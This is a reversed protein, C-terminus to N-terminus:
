KSFTMLLLLTEWMTWWVGCKFPLLKEIVHRAHDSYQFDCPFGVCLLTDGCDVFAEFNTFLKGWPSSVHSSLEAFFPFMSGGPSVYFYSYANLFYWITDQIVTQASAACCMISPPTKTNRDATLGRMPQSWGWGHICSNSQSRTRALQVEFFVSEVVLYHQSSRALLSVTHGSDLVTLRLWIPATCCQYRSCEKWLM